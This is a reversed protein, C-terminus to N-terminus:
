VVRRSSHKLKKPPLRLGARAVRAAKAPAIRRPPALTNGSVPMHTALAAVTEIGPNTVYGLRIKWISSEGVGSVVSLNTIEKGKLSLLWSKVESLPM